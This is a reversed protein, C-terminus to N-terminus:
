ASSSFYLRRTLMSTICPVQKNGHFEATDAVSEFNYAVNQSVITLMSLLDYTTSYKDLVATLAQIFWSGLRPNRWSYYGSVTSYVILFDARHALSAFTIIKQMVDLLASVM